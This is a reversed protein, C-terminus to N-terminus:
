LVSLHGVLWMTCFCVSFVKLGILNDGHLWCSYQFTSLINGHRVFIYIYIYQWWTDILTSVCLFLYVVILFVLSPFCNSICEVNIRNVELPPSYVTLIAHPSTPQDWKDWKCKDPRYHCLVTETSSFSVMIIFLKTTWFFSSHLKWFYFFIIFKEYVELCVCMPLVYAGHMYIYLAFTRKVSNFHGCMYYFPQSCIKKNRSWHPKLAMRIWIWLQVLFIIVTPM